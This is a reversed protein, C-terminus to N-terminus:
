FVQQQQQHQQQQNYSLCSGHPLRSEQSKNNKTKKKKIGLLKHM